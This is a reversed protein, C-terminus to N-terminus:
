TGYSYLTFIYPQGDILNDMQILGGSNYQQGATGLAYVRAYIYQNPISPLGIKRVEGVALTGVFLEDTRSAGYRGYNMSFNCSTAPAPVVGPIDCSVNISKSVPIVVFSNLIIIVNGNTASTASGQYARFETGANELKSKANWTISAAPLGSEILSGEAAVNFAVSSISSDSLTFDVAVSCAIPTSDPLQCQVRNSTTVPSLIINVSGTTGSTATGIVGTGATASWFITGQSPMFVATTGGVGIASSKVLKSGDPLTVDAVVDCAVSVNSASLCQVTVSGSSTFKFDWNWTSFHAVTAEVALGSSTTRSYAVTGVGEEIWLGQKEDFHWLPITSTIDLAQGNISSYPLDMRIKAVKGPALQLKTGDALRFEASIMGASILDVLNGATDKARGNGLMATLDKSSIDWPTIDILAVGTAVSGDPKVFADAPISISAGLKNASFIQQSDIHGTLLTQSVARMFVPLATTKGAEITARLSQSIYGAKSVVVVQDAAAALGTLTAVGQANSTASFTGITITAGPVTAGSAERVSISASGLSTVTRTKVVLVRTAESTRGRTDKIKLKVKYSGVAAYTHQVIKGEAKSANKGESEDNDDDYDKDKAKDGFSWKASKIKIGSKAAETYTTSADFTVAEGVFAPEPNMTFTPQSLCAALVFLCALAFFQGIRKALM